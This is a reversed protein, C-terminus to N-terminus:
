VKKEKGVDLESKLGVGIAMSDVGRGVAGFPDVLWSKDDMGMRKAQAAAM